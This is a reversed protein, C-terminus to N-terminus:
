KKNRQLSTGTVYGGTIMGLLTGSIVTFDKVYVMNEPSHLFVWSVVGVIWTTLACITIKTISQGGGSLMAKAKLMALSHQLANLKDKDTVAQDAIDLGRDIIRIGDKLTKAARFFGM